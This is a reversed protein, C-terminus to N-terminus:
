AWRTEGNLYFTVDDLLQKGGYNKVLHEATLLM